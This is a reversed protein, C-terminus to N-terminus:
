VLDLEVEWNRKPRRSGDYLPSYDMGGEYGVEAASEVSRSDIWMVIREERLRWWPVRDV